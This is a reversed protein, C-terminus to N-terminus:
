LSKLGKFNRYNGKNEWHNPKVLATPKLRLHSPLGNAEPTSPKSPRELADSLYRVNLM